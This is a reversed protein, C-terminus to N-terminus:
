TDTGPEGPEVFTETVWVSALFAGVSIVPIVILMSWHDLVDILFLLAVVAVLGVGLFSSSGPDPISFVKLLASGLLVCAVFTAVLLVFGPGGSCTATNRVAECGRLSLMILGIMAAGVVAGTVAAAPYTPLLPPEDGQAAIEADEYDTSTVPEPEIAPALKARPRVAKKAAGSAKTAASRAAAGAKAAVPREAPKPEAKAAPEAAPKTPPTTKKAPATKQPVPRPEPEPEPTAVPDAVPEPEPEPTVEAVPEPEPELEPEPTVEAVPEEVIEETSEDAAAAESEQDAPAPGASAPRPRTAPAPSTRKSTGTADSKKKRGFLKPPELSLKLKDQEDSM